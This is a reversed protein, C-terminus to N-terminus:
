YLMFRHKGYICYKGATALESEKQRKIEVFQREYDDVKRLLAALKDQVSQPNEGENQRLHQEEM